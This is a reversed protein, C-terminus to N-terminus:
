AAGGSQKKKGIRRCRKKAAKRRKENQVKAAKKMCARRRKKIRKKKAGAKEDATGTANEDAGGPGGDAAAPDAKTGEATGEYADTGADFGLESLGDGGCDFAATLPAYALFSAWGTAEVGNAFTAVYEVETLVADFEFDFPFTSGDPFEIKGKGPTTSVGDSCSLNGEGAVSAVVPTDSISEGNLTGSCSTYDAVGEAPPGSKFAYKVRQHADRLPPDFTSVGSIQCTGNFTATAAGAAPAGVAAAVVSALAVVISKRM